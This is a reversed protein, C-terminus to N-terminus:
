PMWELVVGVSSDQYQRSTQQKFGTSLRLNRTIAYGIAATTLGVEEESGPSVWSQTVSIDAAGGRSLVLLLKIGVNVGDTSYDNTRLNQYGVLPAFNVYSGLPRLYYYLNGGYSEYKGNFASEYEASVTLGSRGIFVDEVGFIIGGGQEGSYGLRIKTRFSPDNQIEELVNPVERRWRQLVPSKKIVEPSLDLDQASNSPTECWGPNAVLLLSMGLGFCFISLQGRM